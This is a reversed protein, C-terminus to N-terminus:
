KQFKPGHRLITHDKGHRIEKLAQITAQKEVLIFAVPEIDKLEM